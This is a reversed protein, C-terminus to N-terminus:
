LQHTDFHTPLPPTWSAESNIVALKHCYLVRLPSLYIPNSGELNVSNTAPVTTRMLLELYAPTINHTTEYTWFAGARRCIGQASLPRTFTASAIESFLLKPSQLRDSHRM